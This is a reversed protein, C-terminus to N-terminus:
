YLGSSYRRDQRTAALSVFISDPQRTKYAPPQYTAQPREAYFIWISTTHHISTILLIPHFVIAAVRM